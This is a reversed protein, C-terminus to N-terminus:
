PQVVTQYNYTNQTGAIQKSGQVNESWSVTITCAISQGVQTTCVIQGQGSPLQSVMTAWNSLDYGAMQLPSCASGVCDAPTTAATALAADGTFTGTGTPNVNIVGPATFLGAAWYAENAMMANSMSAAMMAAMGRARASSTNSLSVGDIGVIGLLGVTILVLAILVELLTFGANGKSRCRSPDKRRVNPAQSM